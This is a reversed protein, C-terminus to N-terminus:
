AAYEQKLLRKYLKGTDHRPLETRFDVSRPCKVAALRGRLYAILEAELAAPDDPMTVPQVVAKVEEGWEESPIGFVAADMVKEHAILADEAEQPYVNVGGTIITFSSRDTLYLYGDDDLHGIDGFHGWGQENHAAATKEPDHHYEFAPGDSFYVLGNEGPGLERFDDEAMIHPTGLVARGVSGPHAVWEPSTIWTVGCGETSGYYEHVIPGLWDIMRQKIDAPCPAGAHVVARLSGVDYASRVEDPLRLMRVFMTPVLQTLTVAHEDIARLAAEADFKEMMVVTAGLQLLSMCYRLPAAHYLPAPSLYVDADSAKFFAQLIPTILHPDGIREDMSRPRIGKPRGTTGSSYLMDRGAIRGPELEEASEAAMMAEVAEYGDIEGGLSWRREVGPTAADLAAATDAYAASLILVRAGCDDVIYALEDAGLRNSIATYLVGAYNCGWLLELYAPHNEVCLAVHDGTQLGASRLARALRTAAEHLQGFTRVAGSSTM